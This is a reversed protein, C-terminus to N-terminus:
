NRKTWQFVRVTLSQVSMLYALFLGITGDLFGLKYFYNQIFKGLPNLILRWFSFTKNEKSLIVSDINSYHAMRDIFESIFNDKLHYLPSSLKGVGGKIKWSEHVPRSFKGSNKKALRLLSTNGTEGYLFPQHFCIDIRKIMFGSYKAKSDISQIERALETGVYEDDDVFLVWENKAMKLAFNRQSAFNNKLPRYYFLINGTTKPKKAPSDVVIIIESAFNVSDLVLKNIKESKSIIAVTIKM